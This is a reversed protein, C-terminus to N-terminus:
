LPVFTLLSHSHFGVFWGVYGNPDRGDINYKDNLYIAIDLAEEASNTWELIGKAWQM